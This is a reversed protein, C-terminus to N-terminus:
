GLLRRKRKTAVTKTFLGIMELHPSFAFQDVPVAYDFRYGAEVLIAADRAFSQVHCAVSIVRPVDSKAVEEMQARAGARPPDLLVADFANLEHPVLPVRFLDRATASVPKLGETRAAAAALAAVAPEDSDFASVSAKEALKLSFPGVGCFLDAIKKASGACEYALATLTEEGAATAQLFTGSPLTVLSRGIAMVPEARMAMLESHVSLRALGLQDINEVLRRRQRDSPVGLGRIDCDIGTKTATLHLDLPKDTDIIQAIRLALDPAGALAPVLIPCRAVAILRHSRRAMFGVEVRGENKRAHFVVRRRGIGSADKLPKVDTVLGHQALAHVLLDRKWAAYPEHAWHQLACGGCTGFVDCIPTIRDPSPKIIDNLEGREGDVTAIITEGPLTFAVHLARGQKRAVGDGKAGMAEITLEEHLKLVGRVWFINRIAM